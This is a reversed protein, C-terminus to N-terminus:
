TLLGAFYLWYYGDRVMATHYTTVKTKDGACFVQKVTDAYQCSFSGTEGDFIFPLTFATYTRDGSGRTLQGSGTVSVLSGNIAFYFNTTISTPNTTGGAYTVIPTYAFRKPFNQPAAAYSYAQGSITANALSYDSGGTITITTDASYATATVYFYKTSGSQVLKIKTGNPFRYRVDKGTIKFSTASVYTWTDTDYIWGDLADGSLQGSDNIIVGSNQLIRGTTGDWRAIANDTSSAPHKTYQTHDDDGLGALAGHDDHPVVTGLTHRTTTDHRTTNLYQTHDDDSLGSLLGHDDHPVVTGLTHRTTTDHRTTNLYQTHDDDGLGALAGHDTIVIPREWRQLREVERELSRIRQIVADEFASM